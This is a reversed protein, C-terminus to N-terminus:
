VWQRKFTSTWRRRRVERGNELLVCTLDMDFTDATSRLAGDTKVQVLRRGALPRFDDHTSITLGAHAPDSDKVECGIRDDGMLFSARTLGTVRDVHADYSRMADFGEGPQAIRHDSLVPLSGPLFPTEELVPLAIFSALEGGAFLTTTMPYPSPWVVPFYANTVVVRIRHGPPFHYGKCFLEIDLTVMEDPPLPEPSVHSHRHTGNLFGYSVIYSTGDPAVDNVRVIWNAQPASASAFLRARVFGLMELPQRLPPTDFVLGWADDERSDLGYYGEYTSPGISESFGGTAPHYALRLESAEPTTETLDGGQGHEPRLYFRKGPDFVSDPWADAFRWEGPIPGADRFSQRRWTPMYYAVRPETLVGNDRGHLFHDFWRSQMRRWDLVPGPWTMGHNWPGLIGHTLAPAHKMIRPVFNQYMDLYGGALYTPITLLGYQDPALSGRRYHPGDLQNNLFTQLWPPTNWRDMAAKSHLDYDPGGPAAIDTIMGLAWSADVMMQIGGPSHIDDTYRDDTGGRVFIAKLPEPKYRAAMWISNFASYSTGYMGVAGNSWPQRAIWEVVRVLDDYEDVAYEDTPVGESGGSGRVDLYLSAFGDLAQGVMERALEGTPENRYPDAAMQAGVRVGSRVKDPLYLLANLHVGDPMRLRLNEFHVGPVMAESRPWLGPSVKVDAADVSWIHERRQLEGAFTSPAALLGGALIARQLLQRRALRM